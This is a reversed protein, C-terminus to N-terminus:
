QNAMFFIFLYIWLLDVFHWYNAVIELGTANYEKRNAKFARFFVILLAILGGAIHLLHLGAIIFLFSESRTGDVRVPQPLHYLQYFGLAQFIGFLIGLLLTITILFRYKPINHQKFARLGLTITISSLLITATSYWFVVPLDYIRWNGQGKAVIYGSTLGAFMMAISAMAVYLAFKQPHMRKREITTNM